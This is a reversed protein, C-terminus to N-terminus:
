YSLNQQLLSSAKADAEKTNAKRPVCVPPFTSLFPSPFLQTILLPRLRTAISVRAASCCTFRRLSPSFLPSLPIAFPLFPSGSISITKWRHSPPLCLFRTLELPLALVLCASSCILPPFFVRVSLSPHPSSSTTWLVKM